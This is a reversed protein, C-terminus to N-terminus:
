LLYEWCCHTPILVQRGSTERSKQASTTRYEDQFLHGGTFRFKVMMEEHEANLNPTATHCIPFSSRHVVKNDVLVEISLTRSDKCAEFWHWLAPTKQAIQANAGTTAFSLLVITVLRIANVPLVKRRNPIHERSLQRSRLIGSVIEPQSLSHYRSNSNFLDTAPSAEFFCRTLISYLRNGRM